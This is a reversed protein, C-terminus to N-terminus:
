NSEVVYWRGGMWQASYYQGCVRLNTSTTLLTTMNGFIGGNTGQDGNNWSFGNQISSISKATNVSSITINQTFYTEGSTGSYSFPSFFYGTQISKIGGGSAFPAFQSLNSM